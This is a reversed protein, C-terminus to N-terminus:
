WGTARRKCTATKHKKRLKNRKPHKIQKGDQYQSEMIVQNNKKNSLDNCMRSESAFGTQSNVSFAIFIGLVSLTTKKM